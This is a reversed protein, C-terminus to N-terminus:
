LRNLIFNPCIHLWGATEVLMPLTRYRCHILQSTRNVCYFGLRSHPASYLGEGYDSSSSIVPWAQCPIVPSFWAATAASISLLMSASASYCGCVKKLWKYNDCHVHLQRMDYLCVPSYRVSEHM